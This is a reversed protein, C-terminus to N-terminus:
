VNVPVAQYQVPTATGTYSPSAAYVMAPSTPAYIPYAVPPAMPPASYDRRRRNCRKRIRCVLLIAVVCIAVFIVVRIGRRRHHSKNADSVAQQCQPSLKEKNHKLCHFTEHDDMVGPCIQSVDNTCSLKWDNHHNKRSRYFHQLFQKCEESLETRHFWICKATASFGQAQSCLRAADADCATSEVEPADQHSQLFQTCQSSLDWSHQHICHKIASTSMDKEASCFKEVDDGCSVVFNYDPLAAACDSPIQSLHLSLCDYESQESDCLEKLDELCTNASDIPQSINSSPLEALSFTL